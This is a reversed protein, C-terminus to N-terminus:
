ARRRDPKWDEKLKSVLEGSADGSAVFDRLAEDIIQRALSSENRRLIGHAIALTM